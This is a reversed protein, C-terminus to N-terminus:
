TRAAPPTLAAEDFRYVGAVDSGSRLTGARTVAANMGFVVGRLRADNRYTALTPLPEIGVAGTRQDITTVKCRTCPKVLKLVVGGCDITALHDEDYAPVDDLVINPRFRDMPMAAEGKAILRTNLDALSATGLVLVPYGDAFLTHAGTTGAYDPNCHRPQSRDFRVLRVDDRGLCAAIWAAADDGQDFGRVKSRWLTIERAVGPPRVLPLVLPECGPASLVLGDGGLATGVRALDPIERQTLFHGAADVVMWERDGVAGAVLGTATAEAAALDIGRAGKLPYLHLSRIRAAVEGAAANM